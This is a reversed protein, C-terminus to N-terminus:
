WVFIIQFMEYIKLNRRKKKNLTILQEYKSLAKQSVRSGRIPHRLKHVNIKWVRVGLM